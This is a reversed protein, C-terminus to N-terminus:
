RRRARARSPRFGPTSPDSIRGAEPLGAQAWPLEALGRPRRAAVRRTAEAVPVGAPDLAIEDDHPRHSERGHEAAATPSSPRSPSESSHAVDFAAPSRAATLAARLESVLALPEGEDTGAQGTSIPRRRRIPRPSMKPFRARSPPSTSERPRRSLRGLARWPSDPFQAAVALGPRPRRRTRGAGSSPGLLAGAYAMRERAAAAVSGSGAAGLPPRRRSGSGLGDRVCTLGSLRARRHVPEGSNSLYSELLQTWRLGHRQRRDAGAVARGAPGSRRGRGPVLPNTASRNKFGGPWPVSLV